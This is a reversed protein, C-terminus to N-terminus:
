LRVTTWLITYIECINVKRTKHCVFRTEHNFKPKRKKKKKEYKKATDDRLSEPTTEQHKSLTCDRLSTICLFPFQVIGVGFCLLSDVNTEAVGVFM